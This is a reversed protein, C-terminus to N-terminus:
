LTTPAPVVAAFALSVDVRTGQGPASTVQLHGGALQAREYMGMLGFHGARTLDALREPVQFGVGDDEIRLRVESETFSVEIGIHSAQAHRVANSLAEQTIRYLALEQENTLRRPAGTVRFTAGAERALMELAPVLGLEELYLPRLAQSFRRIEQIAQGVMSRLEGLRRAAGAPDRELARQIMQLQQDLAILTQVTDDHLERALRAREEEQARTMAVLYDKLAAQYHRVQRAMRDLTLRLDEIEKVGDVPEAAAKFDGRGIRDARAGLQQLPHVVYRLGFFLTLLSVVAATLLIFPMVRDLRLLPAVLDAWSERILLTWGTGPVQAYALVQEGQPHPLFVVRSEDSAMPPLEGLEEVTHPVEDTANTFLVRRKRDLLVITGGINAARYSLERDLGLREVPLGAILWEDSAELPVAWVVVQGEQATTVVQGNGRQPLTALQGVISGVWDPVTPSHAVIRGEPDSVVLAAGDLIQGARALVTNLAEPDNGQFEASNALLHLTSTYRDLLNAVDGALAVALSANREAVLTRMSQQHSRIGTLSFAILLITLPLITWLFIQVWLGRVSIPIHRGERM